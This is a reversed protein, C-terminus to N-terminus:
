AFFDCLIRIVPGLHKLLWLKNIKKLYAGCGIHPKFEYGQSWSNHAISVLGALLVIFFYHYIYLLLLFFVTAYLPFGMLSDALKDVSLHCALLSHWSKLFFFICGLISLLAKLIPSISNGLCVVTLPIWSMLSAACSVNFPVRQTSLLSWFHGSFGGQM